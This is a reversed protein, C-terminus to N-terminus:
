NWECTAGKLTMTAPDAEAEVGAIIQNFSALKPDDTHYRAVGRYRAKHGQGTRISIGNSAIQVVAGSKALLVGTYTWTSPRAPDGVAEFVLTGINQGPTEGSSEGAFDVEVRRRDGGLDTQKIAPIKIALAAEIPLKSGVRPSKREEANVLQSRALIM